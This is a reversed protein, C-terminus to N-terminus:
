GSAAARMPRIEYIDNATDICGFYWQQSQTGNRNYLQVNNGSAPDGGYLDVVYGPNDHSAIIYVGNEISGKKFTKFTPITAANAAISSIGIIISVLISLFFANMVNLSKKMAVVWRMRKGAMDIYGGVVAIAYRSENYRM